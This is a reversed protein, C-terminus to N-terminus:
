GPDRAYKKLRDGIKAISGPDVKEIKIDKNSGSGFIMAGWFVGGIAGAMAAGAPTLHTEADAPNTSQPFILLGLAAGIAGAAALEGTKKPTTKVVTVTGIDRLSATIGSSTSADMLVLDEGRVALLEGRLVQGDRKKIIVDAGKRAGAQLGPALVALTLVIIFPIRREASSM